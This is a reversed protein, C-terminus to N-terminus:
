PNERIAALAQRVREADADLHMSAYLDLAQRYSDGAQPKKDLFLYVVAMGEHADAEDKRSGIRRATELARGYRALAEDPAGTAMALVAYHNLAEVEGGPDDVEVFIELARSISRGAAEPDGNLLQVDGLYTLVGAVGRQYGVAAYLSRSEELASVADDLQGADKNVTGLIMLMNAQGIPEGRERYIELADNLSKRAERTAGTTRQVNGLYGLTVAEGYRMGLDRFLGLARRLNEEAAEFQGTQPQLGGLEALAGAEGHRDGLERYLALAESLDGGGEEAMDSLRKVVGSELLAAALGRRNGLRRYLNAAYNLAVKASRLGGFQRHLVGLHVLVGAQGEFDHTERATTGALGHLLLGQSWPGYVRLYQALATSLAITFDPRGGGAAHRAAADLNALEAGIWARAQEATGLPPASVPAGVPRVQDPRPSRREFHVDAAQATHLYFDLLRGFVASGEQTALSRAYARVLDHFRYRGRVQQDLLNHDLLSELLRWADGGALSAAAHVDFDLGPILGLRRFMRQEAEPLRGYSLEFAARVSVDESRLHGLREREDGLLEVADRVTLLPRHRIWSAMIQVALPLGGCLEVIRGLDPDHAPLRERGATARFLAVAENEPLTALSLSRVDALGRLNVRSTVIVSCGPSGPLLPRVQASNAASDLLILTRTGALLSRYVAAREDATRPVAENPVGLCNHLVSRLAEAPRLPRLGRTHGRLDVFFQGDPFDGAVRHAAQVALATKGIGPMGQITHIRPGSIDSLAAALEALEQERGTFSRVPYPLARTAMGQGVTLGSAPSATLDASDRADRPSDSAPRVRGEAPVGRRGAAEFGAREDESLGLADALKQVTGRHPRSTNGLELDSITGLGVGSIDALTERTLGQRERTERLLRGLSRASPTPM